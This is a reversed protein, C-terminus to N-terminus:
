ADADHKKEFLFANAALTEEREREYEEIMPKFRDYTEQDLELRFSPMAPSLRLLRRMEEETKPPKIRFGRSYEKHEYDAM